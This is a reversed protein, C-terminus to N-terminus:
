EAIRWKFRKVLLFMDIMCRDKLSLNQKIIKYRNLLTDYRQKFEESSSIFQEAEVFRFKFVGFMRLKWMMNMERHCDEFRNLLAEVRDLRKISYETHMISKDNQMYHYFIDSVVAVKRCKLLVKHIVFEDEHVKGDEFRLNDWIEKKYLKNWATVYFCGNKEIVKALLEKGDYVGDRLPSEYEEGELKVGAPTVYDFACIGLSADQKRMEDLLCEYMFPDIYDDSDVFGIYEGTAVELGSNRAASLGGNKQHIVKIRDDIEAYADCLAPCGDDSGDDVLIIELNKYTQNRISDVCKQLFAEVRFVPIIVSIKTNRM